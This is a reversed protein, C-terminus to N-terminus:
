RRVSTGASSVALPPFVEAQASASASADGLVALLGDHDRTVGKRVLVGQADYFLSLPTRHIALQRMLADAGQSVVPVHLPFVRLFAQSAERDDRLLAVVRLTHQESDVLSNLPDVVEHCGQCMASLCVLLTGATHQAGPKATLRVSGYDNITELQVDPMVSGISPGDDELAPLTRSGDATRPAPDAPVPELTQLRRSLLGIQQLMGVVLLVLAVVLAWLMIYSALWLGGL